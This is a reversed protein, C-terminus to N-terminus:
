IMKNIKQITNDIEIINFAPQKIIYQYAKIIATAIINICNDVEEIISDCDKNSYLNSNYLLSMNNKDACYAKIAYNGVSTLRKNVGAGPRIAGNELLIKYLKDPYMTCATDIAIVVNNKHHKKIKKTIKEATFGNYPSSQTGYVYPIGAAKLLDGIQPGISDIYSTTKIAGICAFVTDPTIIKILENYLEDIREDM